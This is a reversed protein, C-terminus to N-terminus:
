LLDFGPRDFSAGPRPHGQQQHGRDRAGRGPPRPLARLRLRGEQPTQGGGRPRLRPCTPAPPPLPAPVPRNRGRPAARPRELPRGALPGRAPPGAPWDPATQTESAFHARIDPEAWDPAINGVYVNTNLPDARTRRPSPRPRLSSLQTPRPARRAPARPARPPARSLLARVSVPRGGRPRDAGGLRGAQAAGVRLARPPQRHGAAAPGRVPSPRPPPPNTHPTPPRPDPSAGVGPTGRLACGCADRGRM